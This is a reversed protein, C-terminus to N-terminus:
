ISSTSLTLFTATSLNKPIYVKVKGKLHREGVMLVFEGKDDELVDELTRGGMSDLWCEKPNAYTSRPTGTERAKRNKSPVVPKLEAYSLNPPKM